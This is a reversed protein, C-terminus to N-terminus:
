HAPAPASLADLHLTARHYYQSSPLRLLVDVALPGAGSQESLCVASAAALASVLAVGRGRGASYSYGATTAYGLVPLRCPLDPNNGGDAFPAPLLRVAVRLHRREVPAGAVAGMANLADRLPAPLLLIEAGREPSGRSHMTFWCSIMPSGHLGPRGVARAVEEQLVGPLIALSTGLRTAQNSVMASESRVRKVARSVAQREAASRLLFLGLRDGAMRCVPLAFPWAQPGEADEPESGLCAQQGTLLGALDRPYVVEQSRLGLNAFAPRKAAPRLTYRDHAVEAHFDDFSDFSLADVDDRPFSAYGEEFFHSELDLTGIARAGAFVLARLLDRAYGWPFIVDWGDDAVGTGAGPVCPASGTSGSGVVRSVLFVPIPSPEDPHGAPVASGFCGGRMQQVTREPLRGSSLRVRTGEDWLNSRALEASPTSLAAQLATANQLSVVSDAIPDSRRGQRLSATAELRPDRIGLAIVLGPPVLGRVSPLQALQRWLAAAPASTAEECVRLVQALAAHGRPGYVRLLGTREHNPSLSESNDASADPALDIVTPDALLRASFALGSFEAEALAQQGARTLAQAVATGISPHCWLWARRGPEADDAPRWLIRVPGLLVFPATGPAFLLGETVRGSTLARGSALNGKVAPHQVLTFARRLLAEVHAVDAGTRGPRALVEVQAQYSADHILAASRFSRWVFRLGKDTARLPLRWGWADHLHFRKAHWVHTELWQRGTRAQRRAFETSVLRTPRRRKRRSAMGVGHQPPASGSKLHRENELAAAMRLRRPLRNPNYSAMRRRMHRPVSQFTRM